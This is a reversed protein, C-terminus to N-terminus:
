QLNLRILEKVTEDTYTQKMVNKGDMNITIETAIKNYERGLPNGKSDSIVEGNLNTRNDHWNRGSNSMKQYLDMERKVRALDTTAHQRTAAEGDKVVQNLENLRTYLGYALMGVGGVIGGVATGVPGFMSGIMAGTGAGSLVDGAVGLGVGSKTTNGGASDALSGLAIGGIMAPLSAKGMFGGIKGLGGLMRGGTSSNIGIMSAAGMPGAVSALRNQAYRMDPRGAKTLPGLGSALGLSGAAAVRTLAAAYTNAAATEATFGAVTTEAMTLASTTLNNQMLKLTLTVAQYGFMATKIAIFGTAMSALARGVPNDTIMTLLHLLQTFAKIIPSVLPVISTGFTNKLVIWNDALMDMSGKETNMMNNSMGETYDKALRLQGVLDHYKEIHNGIPLAKQGRQGFIDYIANQADVTGMKSTAVYIKEIIQGIPLLGNKADKLDSPKLGLRGLADVQKKSGGGAARTAYTVLNNFSVGGMSGRLGMNSLMMLSATTEEFGMKMRHSTAMAYTMAEGFEALSTKSKNTAMGLVDAMHTFNAETRPMDWGQILSTIWDASGGKGGVDSMTAQALETAASISNIIDSYEMGSQAMYRMADAIDQPNFMSSNAVANAKDRIQDFHKGGEDSLLGVYKILYDFDAASKYAEKIGSLMGVGIAAGAAATNRAATAQTRALRNANDNLGIMASSARSAQATFTDRMYLSVGLALGEAVAM